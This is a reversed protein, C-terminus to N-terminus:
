PRARVIAMGWHIDHWEIRRNLQTAWRELAVRVAANDNCTDHCAVTRAHMGYTCLEFWTTDYTHDTDIFLFDIPNPLARSLTVCDAVTNGQVFTIPYRDPDYNLRPYANEDVAWVHGSREIVGLLLAATSVGARVGLEVVTGHAESRLLPLFPSIDCHPDADHLAFVEAPTDPRYQSM